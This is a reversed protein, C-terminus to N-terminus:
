RPLPPGARHLAPLGPEPRAGPGGRPQAPPPQVPPLRGPPARRGDEGDRSGRPRDAAPGAARPHDRGARGPHHGRHRADRRDPGARARGPARRRRPAQDLRRRRGGRRLPRRGRRRRLPPGGHDPPAPGSGPCGQRQGPLLAGRRPCALGRRRSGVPCGRRPAPRHALHTGRGRRHPRLPPAPPQRGPPEGTALPSGRLRPRPEGGRDSRPPAARGPAAHRRPLGLAHDLYAQEAQLEPDSLPATGTM